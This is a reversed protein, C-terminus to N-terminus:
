HFEKNRELFNELEEGSRFLRDVMNLSLAIEDKDKMIEIIQVTEERTAKRLYKKEILDNLLGELIPRIKEYYRKEGDPLKNPDFFYEERKM